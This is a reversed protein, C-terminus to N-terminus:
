GPGKAWLEVNAVGSGAGDGATYTIPIAGGARTAPATASSSPATSDFNTQADPQTPAGERNGLTDVAVTYFSYTGDGATPSYSCSPSRPTTETTARSYGSDGPAKAWLEVSAVGSGAGDDASYTIPIPGAKSTAPASASSTPATSAVTTAGDETLKQPESNGANDVAVTYFAYRGDGATPTYTFVPSDPTADSEVPLTSFTLDDPTKVYLDVHALGLGLSDDSATYPIDFSAGTAFAPPQAASQPTVDALASAAPAGVLAAVLVLLVLAARM